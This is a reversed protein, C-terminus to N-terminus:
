YTSDKERAPSGAGPRIHPVAHRRQDVGKTRSPCTELRALIVGTRLNQYDGIQSLGEDAPLRYRWGLPPGVRAGDGPVGLGCLPPARPSNGPCLATNRCAVSDRPTMGGWEGVEMFSWFCSRQKDNQDGDDSPPDQV